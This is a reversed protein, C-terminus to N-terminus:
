AAGKTHIPYRDPDITRSFCTEGTGHTWTDNKQDPYSVDYTPYAGRGKTEPTPRNFTACLEFSHTGTVTYGYAEQTQPDVPIQFNAIDDALADLKSPLVGKQQYESIIQWQLSQLDNVKQQDFRKLRNDQPTGIIFFGSVVAVVAALLVGAGFLTAIRAHSVWFRKLDAYAYAFVALATLLVVAVKLGFRISLEGGLFTTLLTILDIVITGVALFITLVLAWRRVWVEAKTKDKTISQRILRLLVVTTPVLVIVGAMAARAGSSYPDSYYALPDPFTSNIYEFLLAIFSFVSGYLAIVAGAWLFFDRPTTRAGGHAPEHTHAM